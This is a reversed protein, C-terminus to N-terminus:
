SWPTPPWALRVTLARRVQGSVASHVRRPGFARGPHRCSAGADSGAQRQDGVLDGRASLLAGAGGRQAQAQRRLTAPAAGPRQEYSYQGSRAVRRAAFAALGAPQMRGAARLGKLKRINVPSWTSGPRRPTFRSCYSVEDMPRRVGDIWGFCLAEAVSEPGTLSPRDTNTRYVGVLLEGTSGHHQRLWGRFQARTRFFRPKM